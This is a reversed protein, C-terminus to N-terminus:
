QECQQLHEDSSTYEKIQQLREETIPSYQVIIIHKLGDQPGRVQNTSLFARSLTDALCLLKGQTYVVEINYRQLRMIMEQLRKPASFLPKKLISELPKHDSQVTVSQGFTYQDFKEAAFVIALM